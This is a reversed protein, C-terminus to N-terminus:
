NGTTLLYSDGYVNFLEVLNTSVGSQSGKFRGMGLSVNGVYIVEYSANTTNLYDLEFVSYRTGDVFDKPTEIYIKSFYDNCVLLANEKSQCTITLVNSEGDRNGVYYWRNSVSADIVYNTYTMGRFTTSINSNADVDISGDTSVVKTVVNEKLKIKGLPKVDAYVSM